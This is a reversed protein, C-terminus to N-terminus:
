NEQSSLQPACRIEATILNRDSQGQYEFGWLALITRQLTSTTFEGKARLDEELDLVEDRVGDLVVDLVLGTRLGEQHEAEEGGPQGNAVDVGQCAGESSSGGGGLLGQWWQWTMGGKTSRSAHCSM